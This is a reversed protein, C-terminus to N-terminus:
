ESHPLGDGPAVHQAHWTEFAPDFYRVRVKKLERTSYLLRQDLPEVRERMDAVTQEVQERSTAHIMAFLAYPWDPYTPRRYCHTVADYSALEQGAADVRADPVAWVSMANARFGARRHRLVAAFRRMAGAERLREAAELLAEETLGLRAAMGAFPRPELPLHDQLERVLPVDSPDLGGAPDAGAPDAGGPALPASATATSADATGGDGGAPSGAASRATATREGAVDLVVGLKYRTVTPLLRTSRAGVMRHLAGVHAELDYGPPVAITWWLNLDHDRVYNHSVGPHANIVAAAREVEAEDVTMAVLSSQYGLQATDFIASIQRIVGDAALRQCRQVVAEESLGLDRGVAAFPRPVLPVGAQLATLLHRDTADLADANAAEDTM